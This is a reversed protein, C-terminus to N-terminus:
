SRIITINLETAKEEAMQTIIDEKQLVIKKEYIYDEIDCKTVIRRGSSKSKIDQFTNKDYNNAEKNYYYIDLNRRIEINFELLIRYYELIKDVYARPEKGTFKEFGSSILVIKQGNEMAKFIWKTEFIDDICLAIKAVANRSISPFVTIYEGLEDYNINEEDIIKKCVTFKNLNNVHLKNKINSSIVAYVEYKNQKNINEFFSWYINNWENTLIVYMKKKLLMDINKSNESQISIIAKVILDELKNEDVEM